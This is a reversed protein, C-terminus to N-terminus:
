RPAQKALMLMGILALPWLVCAVLCGFISGYVTATPHAQYNALLLARSRYANALGYAFGIILYIAM